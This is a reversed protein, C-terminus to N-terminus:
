DSNIPKLEINIEDDVDAADAQLVQRIHFNKESVDNSELAEILHDKGGDCLETM